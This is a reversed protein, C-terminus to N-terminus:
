AFWEKNLSLIEELEGLKQGYDRIKRRANALEHMTIKPRDPNLRERKKLRSFNETYNGVWNYVDFGANLIIDDHHPFGALVIVLDDGLDHSQQMYEVLTNAAKRSFMLSADNDHWWEGDPWGITAAIIDDGDEIWDASYPQRQVFTSKGSGPPAFVFAHVM